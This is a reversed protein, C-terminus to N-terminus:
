RTGASNAKAGSENKAPPEMSSEKARAELFQVLSEVDGDQLKLNPMNVEKYRKYLAVAIPDQSKLV